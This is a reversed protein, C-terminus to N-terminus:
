KNWCYRDAMKPWKRYVWLSLLLPSPAFFSGHHGGLRCSSPHSFIGHHGGIPALLKWLFSCCNCNLRQRRKTHIPRMPLHTHERTTNILWSGRSTFNVATNTYKQKICTKPNPSEVKIEDIENHLLFDVPILGMAEGFIALSASNM